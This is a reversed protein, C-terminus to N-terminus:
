WLDESTLTDPAIMKIGMSKAIQTAEDRDVFRPIGDEEILFGDVHTKKYDATLGRNAIDLIIDHHRRGYIEYLTDTDLSRFRIASCIFQTM